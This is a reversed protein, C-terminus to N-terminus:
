QLLKMIAFVTKDSIDSENSPFISCVPLQEKLQYKYRNVLKKINEIPILRQCYPCINKINGMRPKLIFYYIDLVILYILFLISFLWFVESGLVIFM